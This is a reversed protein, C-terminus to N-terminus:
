AAPTNWCGPMIQQRRRITAELLPRSVAIGEIGCLTPQHQSGEFHWYVKQSIDSFDAGLSVLESTLGPFHGEIIRLGSALLGHAHRGQPVGKRNEGAAPFTDRELLTVQEYHNALVRAALLGAMSADIVIAQQGPPLQQKM